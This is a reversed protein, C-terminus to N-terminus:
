YQKLCCHLTPDQTWVQNRMGIESVAGMSVCALLAWQPMVKPFPKASTLAVITGNCPSPPGFQGQPPPQFEETSAVLSYKEAVEEQLESVVYEMGDDFQELLVSSLAAWKGESGEETPSDSLCSDTTDM